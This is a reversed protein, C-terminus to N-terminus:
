IEIKPLNQSRFRLDDQLMRATEMWPIPFFCISFIKNDHNSYYSLGALAPLYTENLSRSTNCSLVLFTFDEPYAVVSSCRWFFIKIWSFISLCGVQMQGDQLARRMMCFFYLNSNSSAVLALTDRECFRGSQWTDQMGYAAPPMKAFGSLRHIKTNAALAHDTSLM